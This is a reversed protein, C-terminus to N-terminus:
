ANPVEKNAKSRMIAKNRRGVKAIKCATELAEEAAEILKAPELLLRGHKLLLKKRVTARHVEVAIKVDDIYNFMQHLEKGSEIYEAADHLTSPDLEDAVFLLAREGINLEAIRENAFPLLNAYKLLFDMEEELTALELIEKSQSEPVILVKEGSLRHQNLLGVATSKRQGLIKTALSPTKKPAKPPEIDFNFDDGSNTLEVPKESIQMDVTATVSNKQGSEATDAVEIPQEKEQNNM